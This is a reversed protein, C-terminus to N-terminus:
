DWAVPNTTAGWWSIESDNDLVTSPVFSGVSAQVPDIAVTIGDSSFGFLEDDAYGVGYLSDVAIVGMDFLTWNSPDIRVLRDGHDDIVTWYIFGDPLGVLDGSTTFPSGSVVTSFQCTSLDLARIDSPGAILLTGDPTFAMGTPALDQECLRGVSANGPDVQWISGDSFGAYMVGDNNVATDYVGGPVSGGSPQHFSGIFTRVGDIPDVEFLDLETNAYIPADAVPPPPDLPTTPPPTPAGVTPPLRTAVNPTTADGGVNYEQCGVIGIAVLLIRNM